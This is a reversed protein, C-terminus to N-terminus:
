RSAKRQSLGARAVERDDIEILTGNVDQFREHGRGAILITDAPQAGVITEVIATRRDPIEQWTFGDPIGAILDQRIQAPDESHPDDDTVILVDALEAVVRAMAPRKSVDRDGASGTIVILKGSTSSRLATMAKALADENHAFDVVVRPEQGIIEMRGPVITNVGGTQQLAREISELSHGGCAVMAVALAANAINFEGSLSSTTHVREGNPAVLTFAQGDRDTLHWADANIENIYLAELHIRDRGVIRRGWESDTIVVGTKAYKETFLEAKAEFYEVLTHHFDLHDQTLNTFGAVTYQVPDIRGQAIAHSSVEMVLSTGGQEVLTALMAQLDAPQPTTLTAPVEVGAIQVSVTGILGTTEGLARLIHDIMFATTTKGNTGTVAYTTLHQAPNGYIVAALKGVNATVHPDIVLPIDASILEAGAPDTIIAHAGAAAAADGYRAGHVHQGPLAFFLDGPLVHRNDATAGTLLIDAYQPDCDPVVQGLSVPSVHQPRIM